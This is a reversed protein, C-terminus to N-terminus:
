HAELWNAGVGTEVVLPVRLPLAGRMADVIRPVLEQEEDIHLDFVLEDHVTLLMRTKYAGERLMRDVRIMALKLLDAATGQIPSNMALREATSRLTRNQSDIDRVYRRRGTLTEVYGHQRCFAITRDIYQQVGPYKEFYEEILATAERRPINLRQQLGFPSIGYIIGFNVTKAQDRMARTVDELPVKFVKSATATHIDTGTRFAEMLGKDDSLEAMIRLEVQSYDASLIRYQDNRPIFAARIERGREKRIPITQLNPDNSQIRGTATWAQSYNTHVRGTREDVSTPLQDVYVSKLKVANRYELVDRVIPHRAALRQLESERTSYQGTPTKKPNAELQLEDYLIVGLQKPSDINFPHGAAEHIRNRLQDIEVALRQSFDAIAATDLQIGEHEMDILVRTLPFEVQYCVDAAGHSELDARLLEALQWTVDADECAYRVLQDVPVDTMQRQEAGREGILASLPIPRYGLYVQALYDLGHKMEPEKMAHALMTDFFPGQVDIDLWRLLSLDYKLNHGIKEIKANTFLPAFENLVGSAQQRDYPLVVYFAQNAAFSFAIGLPTARRADLSTAEMDFCVRPQELLRQLLEERDARTRVALYNKTVDKITKEEVPEEFLTAQIQDKRQDSRATRSPQISFDDGFLRKGLRQFELERFLTKLKEANPEERVLHEWDINHPVDTKITVLERSLRAQDAYTKLKEKLKGKLEDVHALLNDLSDYQAILKQATKPGIGPVGPVNDSSDGMLALIDIVQDVRKIKWRELVEPVGLVEHEGGARGPKWIRILHSVLQHYDKDPTVLYVEYGRAAAEQAITGLVDDAEFGPMRIVPIRFAELLRDIYPLQQALEEPMEERQAKYEAYMEHRHTPEPTDFAVAIHTPSERQLLDLLTNCFGLVASTPLGTSTHPSGRMLAFYARYALAMGDLLYLRKDGNPTALAPSPQKAEDVVRRPEDQDSPQPRPM